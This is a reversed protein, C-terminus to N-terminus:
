SHKQAKQPLIHPLMATRGNCPKFYKSLLGSGTAPQSYVNGPIKEYITTMDDEVISILFM